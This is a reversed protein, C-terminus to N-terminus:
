VLGGPTFAPGGSAQYTFTKEIIITVCVPPRTLAPPAEFHLNWARCLAKLWVPPNM